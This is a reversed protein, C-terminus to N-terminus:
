LGAAKSYDLIALTNQRYRRRPHDQGFRAFAKRAASKREEYRRTHTRWVLTIAQIVLACSRPVDIREASGILHEFVCDNSRGM